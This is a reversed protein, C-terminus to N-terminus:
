QKWGGLLHVHLHDVVQGGEQGVNCSLRYGKLDYEQAIDKAMYMIDSILERDDEGLDAISEVHKKPIILLHIPAKPHIDKFVIITKTERVIDASVNRSVIKCFICDTM